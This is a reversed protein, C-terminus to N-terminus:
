PVPISNPGASSGLVTMRFGFLPVGGPTICVMPADALGLLGQDIIHPPGALHTITAPTWIYHEPTPAVFRASRITVWLMGHVCPVIAIVHGGWSFPFTATVAKEVAKEAVIGAGSFLGLAYAGGLLGALGLGGFLLASNNSSSSKQTSTSTANTAVPALLVSVLTITCLSRFFFNM